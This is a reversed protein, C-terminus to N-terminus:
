TLRDITEHVRNNNEACDVCRSLVNGVIDDSKPRRPPPCGADLAAGADPVGADCDSNPFAPLLVDDPVPDLKNPPLRPPPVGPAAAPGDCGALVPPKPPLRNPPARPLAFGADDDAKGASPAADVDCGCVCVPPEKPKNALGAVVCCDVIFLWCCVLPRPCDERKPVAEVCCCGCCCCPAERDWDFAPVVREACKSLRRSRPRLRLAPSFPPLLKSSSGDNCSPSPSM